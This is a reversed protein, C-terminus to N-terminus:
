IVKPPKDPFNGNAANRVMDSALFEDLFAQNGPHKPFFNQGHKQMFQRIWDAAKRDKGDFMKYYAIMGLFLFTRTRKAREAEKLKSTLLDAKAKAENARQELTKRAM